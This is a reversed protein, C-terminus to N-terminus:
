PVDPLREFLVWGPRMTALHRPVIYEGDLEAPVITTREHHMMPTHRACPRWRSSMLRVMAPGRTECGCDWICGVASLRREGKPGRIVHNDVPKMRVATFDGIAAEVQSITYPGYFKDM